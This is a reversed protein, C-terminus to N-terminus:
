LSFFNTLKTVKLYIVGWRHDIIGILMREKTFVYM